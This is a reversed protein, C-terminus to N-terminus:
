CPWANCLVQQAQWRHSNFLMCPTDRPKQAIFAHMEPQLSAVTLSVSGAQEARGQHRQRQQQRWIQSCRQEHCPFPLVTFASACGPKACDQAATSHLCADSVCRSISNSALSMSGAQEVEQRKRRHRHGRWHSCQHRRQLQHM